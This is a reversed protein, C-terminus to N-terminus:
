ACRRGPSGDGSGEHPHIVVPHRHGRWHRHDGSGEHPHIVMGELLLTSWECAEQGRMPISSGARKFSRSVLSSSEQGRMPISSLAAGPAPLAKAREQGRMPISSWRPLPVRRTPQHDGSGEHPHIVRAGARAAALRPGGSGEHPHIVRVAEATCHWAVFEQGRM